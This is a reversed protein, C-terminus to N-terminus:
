RESMSQQLLTKRHDGSTWLPYRAAVVVQCWPPLCWSIVLAHVPSSTHDLDQSCEPGVWVQDCRLKSVPKLWKLHTSDDLKRTWVKNLHHPNPPMKIFRITQNLLPRQSHIITVPSMHTSCTLNEAYYSPTTFDPGLPGPCGAARHDGPYWCPTM